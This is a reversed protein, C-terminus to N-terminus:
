RLRGVGMHTHMVITAILAVVAIEPKVIAVVPAAVAVVLAIAEVVKAITWSNAMINYRPIRFKQKVTFLLCLTSINISLTNFSILM